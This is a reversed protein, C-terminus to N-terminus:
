SHTAQLVVEKAAFFRHDPPPQALSVHGLLFRYPAVDPSPGGSLTREDAEAQPPIPPTRKSM